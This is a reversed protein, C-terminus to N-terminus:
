SLLLHCLGPLHNSYSFRQASNKENLICPGWVQETGPAQSFAPCVSTFLSCLPWHSFSVHVFFILIAIRPKQSLMCRAWAGPALPIIVSPAFPRPARLQSFLVYLIRSALMTPEAWSSAKTPTCLPSAMHHVPSRGRFAMFAKNQLCHFGQSTVPLHIVSYICMKSFTERPYPLCVLLTMLVAAPLSMLLQSGTQSSLNSYVSELLM